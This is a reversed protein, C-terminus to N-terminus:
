GLAEGGQVLVTTVVLRQLWGDEDKCIRTATDLPSFTAIVLEAMQRPRLNPVTITDIFRKQAHALLAPYKLEEALACMYMHVM